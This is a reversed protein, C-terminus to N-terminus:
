SPALATGSPGEWCAASRGRTPPRARRRRRDSRVSTIARASRFFARAARMDRHETLMADILNGDRDIARYLYCWRGRVKVYTEDVYADAAPDMTSRWGASASRIARSRWSSRRGIVSPKM